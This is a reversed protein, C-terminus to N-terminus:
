LKKQESNKFSYSFYFIIGIVTWALFYHWNNILLKYVLYGCSLIACSATFYVAPCKFSRQLNPQKIRLIIVAISVIIFGFLTGLSTM